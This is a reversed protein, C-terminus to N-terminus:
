KKIEKLLSNIFYLSVSIEEETATRGLYLNAPYSSLIEQYKESGPESSAILTKKNSPNTLYIRFHYDKSIKEKPSHSTIKYEFKTLGARRLNSVINEAIRKKTLFSNGCTVSFDFDILPVSPEELFELANIQCCFIIISLLILKANM